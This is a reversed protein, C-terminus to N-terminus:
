GLVQKGNLHLQAKNGVRKIKFLEFGIEDKWIHEEGPGLIFIVPGRIKGPILEKCHIVDEQVM